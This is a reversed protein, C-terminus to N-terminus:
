STELIHITGQVEGQQIKDLLSLHEIRSLISHYAKALERLRLYRDVWANRASSKIGCLISSLKSRFPETTKARKAAFDKWTVDSSRVHGRGPSQTMRSDGRMRTTKGINSAYCQLASSRTRLFWQLREAWQIISSFYGSFAVITAVFLFVSEICKHVIFMKNVRSDGHSKLPGTLHIYTRPLEVDHEHFHFLSQQDSPVAM